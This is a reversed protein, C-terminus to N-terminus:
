TSQHASGRDTRIKDHIQAAYKTVIQATISTFFLSVSIAIFLYISDSVPLTDLWLSPLFFNGFNQLQAKRLLLILPVHFPSECLCTVHSSFNKYGKM